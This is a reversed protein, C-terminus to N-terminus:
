REYFGCLFSYERNEDYERKFKERFFKQSQEKTYEIEKNESYSKFVDVRWKEVLEQATSIGSTVSAGAGLLLSYNSIKDIRNEIFAFLDEERKIKDRILSDMSIIQIKDIDSCLSNKTM